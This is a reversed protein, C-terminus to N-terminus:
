RASGNGLRACRELPWGRELGFLLAARFADGCGTPDVIESAARRAGRHQEGQQWVECGKRASPSSSAACTRGRCRRLTAGHARVADRAEYDNVAVWSAQEVFDRLEDGDFM